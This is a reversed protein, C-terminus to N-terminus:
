FLLLLLLLISSGDSDFEHFINRLKTIKDMILLSYIYKASIHLFKFKDAPKNYNNLFEILKGRKSNRKEKEKDSLPKDPLLSIV